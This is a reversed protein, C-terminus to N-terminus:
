KNKAAGRNAHTAAAFCGIQNLAQREDKLLRSLMAHRAIDYARNGAISRRREKRLEREIVAILRQRGEVSRDALDRPWVPLYERADGRYNSESNRFSGARENAPARTHRKSVRHQM